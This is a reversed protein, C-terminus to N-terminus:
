LLGQQDFKNYVSKNKTTMQNVPQAIQLGKFVVKGNSTITYKNQINKM